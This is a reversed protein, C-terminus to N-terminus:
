QTPIPHMIICHTIIYIALLLETPILSSNLQIKQKSLGPERVVQTEICIQTKNM